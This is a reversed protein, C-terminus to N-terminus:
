YCGFQASPEWRPPSDWRAKGFQCGTCFTFSPDLAKNKLNKVASHETPILNLHKSQTKSLRFFGLFRYKGLLGDIIYDPWAFPKWYFHLTEPFIKLLHYAKFCAHIQYSCLFQSWVSAHVPKLGNINKNRVAPINKAVFVAKIELRRGWLFVEM